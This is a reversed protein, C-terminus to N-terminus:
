ESKLYEPRERAMWDLVQRMVYTAGTLNSAPGKEMVVAFAYRPNEYPFFGMVWSNVFQKQAGLEATGTKGAVHVDYANLGKATGELVALRMGEKVVTFHEAPVNIKTEAGPTSSALLTPTVLMGDTAIGAVARVAQIPTIQMGYQGIVTHYTDGLLWPAGLAQAGAHSRGPARHDGVVDAVTRLAAAVLALVILAKAVPM